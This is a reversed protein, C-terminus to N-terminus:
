DNSSDSPNSGTSDYSIMGDSDRPKDHKLKYILGIVGAGILLTFFIFGMAIELPM